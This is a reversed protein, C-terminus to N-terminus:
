SHFNFSHQNRSFELNTERSFDIVYENVNLEKEMSVLQNAENDMPINQHPTSNMIPPILPSIMGTNLHPEAMLINDIDFKQAGSSVFRNESTQAMNETANTPLKQKSHRKTHRMLASSQNFSANCVTCKYPKEGTHTRLHCILNSSNSFTKECETCKHRREGRHVKRMHDNLYSAKLFDKQCINCTFLKINSHIASHSNLDKLTKFNRLCENCQFNRAESHAVQHTKLNSSTTFFQSCVDCQFRKEGTHIRVHLTLNSMQNFCKQCVECQFPKEGTHIRMHTELYTRNRFTKGCVSCIIPARKGSKRRPKSREEPQLFENVNSTEEAEENGLDKEGKTSLDCNGAGGPEIAPKAQPDGASVGLSDESQTLSNVDIIVDNLVDEDATSLRSQNENLIECAINVADYIEDDKAFTSSVESSASSKMFSYNVDNRNANYTFGKYMHFYENLRANSYECQEKLNYADILRGTCTQCLWTSLGYLNDVRFFDMKQAMDIPRVTFAESYISVAAEGKLCIRCILNLDIYPVHEM